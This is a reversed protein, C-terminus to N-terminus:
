VAGEGAEVRRPEADGPARDASAFGAPVRRQLVRQVALLETARESSILENLLFKGDHLGLQREGQLATQLRAAQFVLALECHWQDGQKLAVGAFFGQGRGAIGAVHEAAVADGVFVRYHAM